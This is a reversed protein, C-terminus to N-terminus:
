NMLKFVFIEKFMDTGKEGSEKRNIAIVHSKRYKKNVLLIKYILFIDTHNRIIIYM